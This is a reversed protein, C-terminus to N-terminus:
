EFLADIEEVTTCQDVQTKKQWSVTYATNVHNLMAASLEKLQNETLDIDQNDKTRWRIVIGTDSDPSLIGSFLGTVAGTLNNRSVEDSDWVYGLCEVGSDIEDMRDSNIKEYLIKKYNEIYEPREELTFTIYVHGDRIEENRNVIKYRKSDYRQEIIPYIGLGNLKELPWSTFITKPYITEGIEVQRPQRITTGDPLRYM